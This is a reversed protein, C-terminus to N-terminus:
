KLFFELGSRRKELFGSQFRRVISKPPLNPLSARSKEFTCELEARLTVFESYRKRLVITGGDLTDVDCTWVVYDGVGRVAGAVVTHSPIRVVRAWLPSRVPPSRTGTHDYYHRTHASSDQFHFGAHGNSRGNASSASNFDDYEYPRTNDELRIPAPRNNGITSAVSAASTTRQHVQWYPPSVVPPLGPPPPPTTSRQAADASPTSTTATTSDEPVPALGSARLGEVHSSQQQQQPQATELPQDDGGGPTTAPATSAM